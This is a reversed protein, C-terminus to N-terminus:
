YSDEDTKHPLGGILSRSLPILDRLRSAIAAVVEVRGVQRSWLQLENELDFEFQEMCYDRVAPWARAVSIAYDFFGLASAMVILRLAQEIDDVAGPSRLAILDCQSIQGRSYPMKFRAVYPKAPLSRRRWRHIDHMEVIEFGADIIRQVVEWVLPQGIRQELFSGEVKLASCDQLILGGSELISLEAGEVDIKIYDIRPLQGSEKLADLSETRVPIQEVDVHLNPYGFRDVMEDNHPL